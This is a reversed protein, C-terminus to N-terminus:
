RAVSFGLPWHTDALLCIACQNLRAETSPRRAALSPKEMIRLGGQRLFRADLNGTSQSTLIMDRVFTHLRTVANGGDRPLTAELVRNRRPMTSRLRNKPVTLGAHEWNMYKLSAM